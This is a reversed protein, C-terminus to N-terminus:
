DHTGFLTNKINWKLAIGTSQIKRGSYLASKAIKDLNYLLFRGKQPWVLTILKFVLRPLGAPIVLILKRKQSFGEKLTHIIENISYDDNDKVLLTENAVGQANLASIIFDTVNNCSCLSLKQNGSGVKYFALKKPLYVRKCINLLFDKGYVPALRLITYSINQQRCTEIIFQEAAMKSEGYYDIPNATSNEDPITTQTLDGYISVTSTFIVQKLRSADLYFIMNKTGQLNIDFYNEKSLDKAKNHVLAALHILTDCQKIEEPFSAMDTINARYFSFNDYTNLTPINSDSMDLGTVHHNQKLLQEAMQLGLFGNIGTVLIHAM